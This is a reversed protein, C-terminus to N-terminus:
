FWEGILFFQDLITHSEENDLRRKQYFEVWKLYIQYWRWQRYFALVRDMKPLQV